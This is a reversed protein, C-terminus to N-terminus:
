MAEEWLAMVGDWGELTLVQASGPVLNSLAVPYVWKDTFNDRIREQIPFGSGEM